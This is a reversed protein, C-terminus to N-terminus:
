GELERTTKAGRSRLYEVMKTHEGYIAWSLPTGEWLTDKIDLRAGRDILLRVVDERGAWVAQHLPTSHAHTGPPNYRNPDEGADLLLRVIDAHGLQAALAFGRHREAASAGPLLRRTDDLRGLGAATALRDIRAGRRLLAEAADQYGFVLATEVPSGWLDSGLSNVSAGFDALTDVLAVQVGADAPHCSSVVMSMTAYQGGYMNALADPDAGAQLLIRAIGVANKPTKQRFGEVGNAAIYHLLTARHEPPDHHTVFTSRARVLEPAAELLKALGATDGTIVAEVATEFRSVPSGEQNTAEVLDALSQWDRFSYWRALVLRADDTALAANQIEAAATKKPLWAPDDRLFRPHHNKICEIADPDGARFAALLQDAQAEYQPLTSRFPLPTVKM